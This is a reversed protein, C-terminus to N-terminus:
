RAANRVQILELEELPTGSRVITEHDGCSIRKRFVRLAHFSLNSRCLAHILMSRVCRARDLRAFAHATSQEILSFRL